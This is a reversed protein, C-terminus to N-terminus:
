TEGPKSLEAVAALWPESAALGVVVQGANAAESPPMSSLDVQTEAAAGQEVREGSARDAVGGRVQDADLEADVEDVRVQHAQTGEGRRHVTEEVGDALAV